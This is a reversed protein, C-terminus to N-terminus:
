RADTEVRNPAEHGAESAGGSSTRLRARPVGAAILADRVITARREGVMMTREEDSSPESYGILTVAEFGREAVCAANARVAARAAGDLELSDRAFVIPALECATAVADGTSPPAASPETPAGCAALGLAAGLGWARLADRLSSADM